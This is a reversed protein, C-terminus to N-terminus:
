GIDKVKPLKTWTLILCYIAWHLTHIQYIPKDYGSEKSNHQINKNSIQYVTFMIESFFTRYNCYNMHHNWSKVHIWTYNKNSIALVVEAHKINMQLNFHLQRPKTWSPELVTNCGPATLTEWIILTQNKFM